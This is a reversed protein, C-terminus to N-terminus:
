IMQYRLKLMVTYWCIDFECCRCQGEESVRERSRQAAVDPADEAVAKVEARTEEVPATPEAAPRCPAGFWMFWMFRADDDDNGTRYSFRHKKSKM